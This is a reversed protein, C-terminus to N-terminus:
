ASARAKAAKRAAAKIERWLAEIEEAAKRDKEPGTKGTAIANVYQVRHAIVTEAVPVKWAALVQRAQEVLKGDHQTKGNIVVLCPTGAEQCLSICDQSAMLDLGSARVPIVVLTSSRVADETVILSGPPGDLFVYEYPSTLGVAEVAESARDEGTLLAPNDPSGRRAYWDSYSGQSDLDVVCVANTTAAQVACAATLTTKGVGGKSNLMGIVIM